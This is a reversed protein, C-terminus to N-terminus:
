LFLGDLEEQVLFERIGRLDSKVSQVKTERHEKRVRLDEEM